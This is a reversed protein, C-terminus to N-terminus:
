KGNVWKSMIKGDKNTLSGNWPFGVKYEGAYKDGNSWTFTGLGIPIGDKWNVEYKDGYAFSYTGQGHFNDDKWNGVYKDGQPSTM